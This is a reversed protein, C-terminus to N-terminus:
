TLSIVNDLKLDRHCHSIVNEDWLLELFNGRFNESCSWHLVRESIFLSVPSCKM